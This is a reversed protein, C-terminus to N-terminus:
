GMSMFLLLLRQSLSKEAYKARDENWLPEGFEYIM